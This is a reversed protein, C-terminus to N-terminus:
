FCGLEYAVGRSNVVRLFLVLVFLPLLKMLSFNSWFCRNVKYSCVIVNIYYLQLCGLVDAAIYPALCLMSWVASILLQLCKLIITTWIGSFDNLVVLLAISHSKVKSWYTAGNDFRHPTNQTLHCHCVCLKTDIHWLM